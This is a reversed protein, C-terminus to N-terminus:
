NISVVVRIKAVNNEKSVTEKDFTTLTSADADVQWQGRQQKNSILNMDDDMSTISGLMFPSPEFPESIVHQLFLNSILPSFASM